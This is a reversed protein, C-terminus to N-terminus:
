LQLPKDHDRPWLQITLCGNMKWAVWAVESAGLAMLLEKRAWEGRFLVLLDDLGFINPDISLWFGNLIGRRELGRLRDRVAPSSPSIHRGLSRYSQRANKHLAAILHFDKVDV